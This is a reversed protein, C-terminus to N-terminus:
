SLEEVFISPGRTEIIKVSAGKEIIGSESMVDLKEDGVEVHGSPAIKTLAIGEKGILAALRKDESRDNLAKDLVLQKTGPLKQFHKMWFWLMVFGLIVFAIFAFAGAKFGYNVFTMVVSALLCIVGGIGIIGGPLVLEALICLIGIVALIIIVSM